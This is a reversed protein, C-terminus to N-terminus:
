TRSKIGSALKVSVPLEFRDGQQYDVILRDFAARISQRTPEPQGLYFASTRVTGGLMGQWLDDASRIQHDFSVTTIRVDSLGGSALLASFEQEDAFRYFRPGAPIDSPPQAGVAEFSALFVGLLRMRDPWDWTTLALRGGDRLVRVAESVAREPQSLHPALFNSVVADFVDDDFPLAEAKAVRFEITPHLRRALGVMAAAVDVGVVSAGREAAQAAAYGPGTAVDLVRSGHEVRAADLLPPVLRSTVQGIVDHYTPAQHEWGAAEFASFADADIESEDPVPRDPTMFEQREHLASGVVGFRPTIEVGVRCHPVHHEWAVTVHVDLPRPLSAGCEDSAEPPSREDAKELGGPAATGYARLEQSVFPRSIQNIKDTMQRQKLDVGVSAM